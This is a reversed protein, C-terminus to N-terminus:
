SRNYSNKENEMKLNLCMIDPNSILLCKVYYAIMDIM